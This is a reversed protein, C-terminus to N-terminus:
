RGTDSLGSSAGTSTGTGTVATTSSSGGTSTGTPTQQTCTVPFDITQETNSNSVTFYAPGAAIMGVTSGVFGRNLWSAVYNGASDNVYLWYRKGVELSKLTALGASNSIASVMPSGTAYVAISVGSLNTTVTNDQSCIKRTRIPFDAYQTTSNALMDNVGKTIDLDVGACLDNISFTGVKKSADAYDAGLYANINVPLGSPANNVYDTAVAPATSDAYLNMPHMWGGGPLSVEFYIANGRAGKINIPTRDCQPVWSKGASYKWAFWDLNFYSLHDTQFTVPYTNGSADLAGLTGTILTGDRLKQASWVGTSTDYSWIPIVDGTKVAVGTLPNITRKPITITLTIPKDFTKAKVVTGDAATSTLEVSAFGGSIFTGPSSLSQGNPDEMTLFGGPFTALSSNTQNNNYTVNLKATGAPLVQTRAADAYVTTSPPIVVEASGLNITAGQVSGSATTTTATVATVGTVGATIAVNASGVTVSDPPVTQSILLVRTTMVNTEGTASTFDSSLLNVVQSSMVYDPASAVIRLSAPTAPTADPKMYLAFVGNTSTYPGALKQLADYTSLGAGDVLRSAGDGYVWITVKAPATAQIPILTKADLINVQITVPFTAQPSPAQYSSNGRGACAYLVVLLLAGIWTVLSSRCYKMTNSQISGRLPM